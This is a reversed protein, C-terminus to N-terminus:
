IPLKLGYEKAVKRLNDLERQQDQVIQQMMQEKQQQQKEIELQKMQTQLYMNELRAIRDEQHTLAAVKDKLRNEENITLHPVAKLYQQLLEAETPKYYVQELFGISHGMLMEVSVPNIGDAAMCKTKFFKRLAHMAMNEHRDGSHLKKVDKSDRIGSRYILRFLQTDVAETAIHRPKAVQKGKARWNFDERILPADKTIVEGYRERYKKYLDIAAACEPTTFTTYQEEANRYVIVQYLKHEEIYTLDRFKLGAIAGRRMGSSAMLLVMVKTREDAFDLLQKIQAYTYPEDFARKIMRGIQKRIKSWNIETTIDNYNYFSKLATYYGKLTRPSVAVKYKMHALFTIIQNQIQTADMTTKNLLLKGLDGDKIQLFTVYKRLSYEYAEKTAQSDLSNKFDDWTTGTLRITDQNRHQGM